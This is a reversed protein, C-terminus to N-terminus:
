CGIKTNTFRSNFSYFFWRSKQYKRVAAKTFSACGFLSSYYVVVNNVPARFVFVAAETQKYFNNNWFIPLVQISLKYM